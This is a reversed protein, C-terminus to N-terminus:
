IPWKMFLGPAYECSPFMVKYQEDLKRLTSEDLYEDVANINTAKVRHKSEISNHRTGANTEDFAVQFFDAIRKTAKAYSFQAIDEVSSELLEVKERFNKENEVRYKLAQWRCEVDDVYWLYKQFRHMSSWTENLAKESKLLVHIQFPTPFWRVNELSSEVHNWSDEQEVGLAMLSLALAIRDRRMRLIRIFGPLEDILANALGFALPVHGTFVFRKANDNRKMIKNLYEVRNLKVYLRSKERFEKITDLSSLKRYITRVLDRTPINEDEEQHVIVASENEKAVLVRALHQTGCRGTSFVFGYVKQDQGVVIKREVQNDNERSVRCIISMRVLSFLFLVILVVIIRRLVHIDRSSKRLSKILSEYRTRM